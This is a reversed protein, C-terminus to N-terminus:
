ETQPPHLDGRAEILAAPQSSVAEDLTQHARIRTLRAALHPRQSSAQSCRCSHPECSTLPRITLLCVVVSSVWHSTHSCTSFLMNWIGDSASLILWCERTPPPSHPLVSKGHQGCSGECVSEFSFFRMRQCQEQLIVKIVDVIQEQFTAGSCRYSDPAGPARVQECNRQCWLYIFVFTSLTNPSSSLCVQLTRGQEEQAGGVGVVPQRLEEPADLVEEDLRLRGEREGGRAAETASPSTIPSPVFPFAVGCRPSSDVNVGAASGM